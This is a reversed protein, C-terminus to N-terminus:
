RNKRRRNRNRRNVRNVHERYSTSFQHRGKEAAVFYLYPTDAPWLAAELAPLGPSCIPGPPLGPHLYTNYPSKTKRYDNYLLRKKWYGLAYQVTPDAQLLMNKKLRNHYVSSVVSLEDKVVAEREVISALTVGMKRTWGLERVRREYDPTWRKEFEAKLFEAVRRPNLGVDLEYTAPFLFGELDNQLVIDKFGQAECIKLAELREAIQWSSFGEPIVVKIKQTRGHTLDDVVWFSSRGKSFRYRGLKLQEGVGRLKIWILFPIKTRLFGKEKLQDAVQHANMGEAVDIEVWSRGSGPWLSWFVGAIFLIALIVLSKPCRM